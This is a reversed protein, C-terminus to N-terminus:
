AAPGSRSQVLCRTLDRGYPIALALGWVLYLVVGLDTWSRLVLRWSGLNAAFLFVFFSGALFLVLDVLMRLPTRLRAMARTGRRTAEIELAVVYWVFAVGLLFVAMEIVREFKICTEANAMSCHPYIHKDWEFSVLSRLLNAPANISFALAMEWPTPSWEQVPRTDGIGLLIAAVAVNVIPLIVKLRGNM